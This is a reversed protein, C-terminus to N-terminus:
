TVDFIDGSEMNTMTAPNDNISSDPITPFTAGDGMQWYGVLNAAPGVTHLSRYPLAQNILLADAASVVANWMAVTDIDGTFPLSIGPELRAGIMFAATTAITASLTNNVTTLTQDVGDVYIHVGAPGSTGDYTVLVDHFQGDNFPNVTRMSLFNNGSVSNNLNFTFRGSNAMHLDYGRNDTLNGMKGCIIQSASTSTRIRALISFSDTREKQLPAVNGITAYEDTGGFATAYLPTSGSATALGYVPGLTQNYQDAIESETLARADIRLSALAVSASNVGEFGLWLSAATGGTPVPLATSPLGFRRGNIFCEAVTNKRRLVLHCPQFLPPLRQFGRTEDVGSGQEQFWQITDDAILSVAYQVNDAATEGVNDYSVIGGGTYADFLAIMLITIDGPIKLLTELTAHNYKTAPFLKVARLGPAIEVYRETGAVLSLHFNNGSTDLLSEQFQWLGVTDENAEHLQVRAPLADLVSKTATPDDHGALGIVSLVRRQPLTDGAVEVTEYMVGRLLADLETSM